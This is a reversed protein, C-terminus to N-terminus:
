TMLISTTGPQRYKCQIAVLNGSDRERAVLDIGTDPRNNRDPWERWRWVHSFREGRAKDQRIFAQVVKEFLDGKEKTNESVEDIRNIVAGFGSAGLLSTFVENDKDDAVFLPEMGLTTM